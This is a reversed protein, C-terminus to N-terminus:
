SGGQGHRDRKTRTQGQQVFDNPGVRRCRTQGQKDKDTGGTIVLDNTGM